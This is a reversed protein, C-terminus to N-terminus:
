SKMSNIKLYTSKLLFARISLKNLQKKDKMRNFQNLYTFELLIFGEQSSHTHLRRSLKM